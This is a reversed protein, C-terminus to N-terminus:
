RTVAAKQASGITKGPVAPASFENTCTLPIVSPQRHRAEDGQSSILTAV